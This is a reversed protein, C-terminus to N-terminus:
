EQNLPAKSETGTAAESTSKPDAPKSNLKDLQVKLPAISESEFEEAWTMSEELSRLGSNVRALERTSELLKPEIANDGGSLLKEYVDIEDKRIGIEELAVQRIQKLRSKLRNWIALTKAANNKAELLQDSSALGASFQERVSLARQQATELEYGAYIIAESFSDTALASSGLKNSQGSVEFSKLTPEQKPVDPIFENDVEVKAVKPVNKPPADFPASGQSNPLLTNASLGNGNMPIFQPPTSSLPQSNPGPKPGPNPNEISYSPVSSPPAYYPTPYLLNNNANYPPNPLYPPVSTANTPRNSLERNWALDDASELLEAIRREVIEAKREGRKKHLEKAEALEAELKEVQKGQAAHRVDFQKGVAENLSARLAQKQEGSASRLQMRLQNIEAIATVEAPSQPQYFNQTSQVTQPYANQSYSNQGYANPVYTYPGGPKPTNPSPEFTNQAPFTAVRNPTGPRSAIANELPSQAAMTVPIAPVPYNAAAVGDAYRMANQQRALAVTRSNITVMAIAILILIGGASVILGMRRRSRKTKPMQPEFDSVPTTNM